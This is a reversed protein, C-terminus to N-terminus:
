GSIRPDQEGDVGTLPETLALWVRANQCAMWFPESPDLSSPLPANVLQRLARALDIASERDSVRPREAM